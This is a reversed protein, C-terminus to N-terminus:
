GESKLLAVMDALHEADHQLWRELLQALTVDGVGNLHGTRDLVKEGAARLRAVARARSTEFAELAPEVEQLHYAREEAVRRGDVDPLIPHEEEIMLAVRREYGEADIGRLHAVSERLTCRGDAPRRSLADDDLGDVLARVRHPTAELAALYELFTM